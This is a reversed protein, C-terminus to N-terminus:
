RWAILEFFGGAFATLVLGISTPVMGLLLAERAGWRRIMGPAFPTTFLMAVVWVSMPLAIAISPDIGAVPEYLTKVYLPFFSRSLEVGFIYFFLPFPIDSAK